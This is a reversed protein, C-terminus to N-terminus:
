ILYYVLITVIMIGFLTISTNYYITKLKKFSKESVGYQKWHFNMIGTLIGFIAMVVLFWVAMAKSIFEVTLFEFDM